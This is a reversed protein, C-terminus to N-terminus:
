RKIDKRTVGTYEKKPLVHYWDYVDKYKKAQYEKELKKHREFILEFCKPNSSLKNYVGSVTAKGVHMDEVIEVHTYGEQLMEAIIIRRGLQMREEDTFLGKMLEEVDNGDNAALLADRLKNLADYIDRKTLFQYRRMRNRPSTWPVIM